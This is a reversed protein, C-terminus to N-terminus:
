EGSNPGTAGCWACRGGPEGYGDSHYGGVGIAECGGFGVLTVEDENTSEEVSELTLVATGEGSHIVSEIRQGAAELIKMMETSVVFKEARFELRPEYRRRGGGDDTM